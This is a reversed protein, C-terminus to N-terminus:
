RLAAMPILGTTPLITAAMRAADSTSSMAVAPRGPDPDHGPSDHAALAKGLVAGFARAPDAALMARGPQRSTALLGGIEIPGNSADVDCYVKGM